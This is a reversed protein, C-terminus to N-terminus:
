YFRANGPSPCIKKHSRRPVVNQPCVNKWNPTFCVGMELEMKIMLRYRFNDSEFSVEARFV